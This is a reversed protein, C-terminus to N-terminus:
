KRERTRWEKAHPCTAHHAVYRLRDETPKQPDDRVEREEVTQARATPAKDGLARSALLWIGEFTPISDFIMPRRTVNHLAWIVEANCSRCNSSPLRDPQEGATLNM